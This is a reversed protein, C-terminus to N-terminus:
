AHYRARRLRGRRKVAGFVSFTGICLKTNDIVLGLLVPPMPKILNLGAKAHLIEKTETCAYSDFIMFNPYDLGVISRQLRVKETSTCARGTWKLRCWIKSFEAPMAVKLTQLVGVIVYICDNAPLYQSFVDRFYLMPNHKWSFRPVHLGVFEGKQSQLPLPKGPRDTPLVYNNIGIM